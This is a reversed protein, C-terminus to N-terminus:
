IAVGFMHNVREILKEAQSFILYVLGLRILLALLIKM